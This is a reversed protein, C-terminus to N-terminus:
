RLPEMKRRQLSPDLTFNATVKGNKLSYSSLLAESTRVEGPRYLPKLEYAITKGAPDPIRRLQTRWVSHMGCHVFADAESLAQAGPIDKKVKYMADIAYVDFTYGSKEDVLVAVNALDDGSTCGYLILTYNGKLEAPDAARPALQTSAVCAQLVLVAVFCTTAFVIHKLKKM